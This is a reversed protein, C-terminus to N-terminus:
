PRNIKLRIMRLPATSMPVVDRAEFIFQTDTLVEAPDWNILDDSVEASWIIDTAAPNKIASLNLFDDSEDVVVSSLSFEQPDLALAYEVLNALGDHDPDALPGSTEPDDLEEATFHQFRWADFPKDEITVIASQAPDRILTFDAALQVMVSRDGQALADSIPIVPIQATAQGAPLLVTAPLPHYHTGAIATGTVSLPVLLPLTTDGSRTITIMGQQLDIERALPSATVVAVAPLSHWALAYRTDPMSSNEVVLAYSGPPLAGQQVLEVNDVSSVSEAILDGVIFEEAYHLKLNLDAMSSSLNGWNSGPRNDTIVRHWTLAACFPTPTTGAAINFFYTNSSNGDASATAWGRSGASSEGSDDFPGSRLTQYAHHINLVGAGYRIDLPRTNTNAWSPVTDKRASALLLVKILRPLDATELLHDQTIRSHLLAAASAVMPTSFSTFDSPAVIDPKIRGTGDHTTFGASHAGTALGVSIGHYNQGLLDPLKTESTSGNNVGVVCVFGDRNIAFDLRRNAEEATATSISIWSHNQVARAEIAPPSLTGVKLFNSGLWSTAHYLDVPVDGTVLSTSNGYFVNAVATAHSSASSAGSKFEFLKGSFNGSLTDPAYDTTGSPFAETQSFGQSPAPPLEPGAITQLRTFGIDDRWDARAPSAILWPIVALVRLSVQFKPIRM